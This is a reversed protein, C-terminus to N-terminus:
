TLMKKHHESAQQLWSQKGDTPESPVLMVGSQGGPLVPPTHVTEPKGFGRDLLLKAAIVRAQPNLRRNSCIEVLTAVAVAAHPIVMGRVLRDRDAPSLKGALEEAINESM